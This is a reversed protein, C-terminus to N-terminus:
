IERRSSLYEFFSSTSVLLQRLGTDACTWDVYLSPFDVRVASVLQSFFRKIVPTSLTRNSIYQYLEGHSCFETVLYLHVPTEFVDLLKLVHTHEVLKQVVIERQIIEAIKHNHSMRKIKKVASYEGTDVNRAIWVRGCSGKGLSEGLKWKGIMHRKWDEKSAKSLKRPPRWEIGNRADDKIPTHWKWWETDSPNSSTSDLDLSFSASTSPHGHLRSPTPSRPPKVLAIAALPPPPRPSSSPPLTM